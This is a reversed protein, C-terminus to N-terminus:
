LGGHITRLGQRVASMVEEDSLCAARSQGPNSRCQTPFLILGLVVLVRRRSSYMEPTPMIWTFSSRLICLSGGKSNAIMM